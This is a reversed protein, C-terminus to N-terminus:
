NEKTKELIKRSLAGERLEVNISLLEECPSHSYTPEFRVDYTGYDIYLKGDAIGIDWPSCDNMIIEMRPELAIIIYKDNMEIRDSSMKNRRIAIGQQTAYM